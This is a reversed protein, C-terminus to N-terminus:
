EGIVKNMLIKMKKAITKMLNEYKFLHINNNYIDTLLHMNITRVSLFFRIFHLNYDCLYGKFRPVRELHHLIKDPQTGLSRYCFHILIDASYYIKIQHPPSRSPCSNTDKNRIIDPCRTKTVGGLVHPKDTYFFTWTSHFVM